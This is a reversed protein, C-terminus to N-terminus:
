QLNRDQTKVDRRDQSTVASPSNQNPADSGKGTALDLATNKTSSGGSPQSGGNSPPATLPNTITRMPQEDATEQDIKSKEEDYDYDEIELEKGAIPAATERALYGCDEAFKVDKLKSSRDQTIIEPFTVECQSGEVGYEDQFKRWVSKVLRGCDLQIREFKKAVPETAVIAGARNSGASSAMGFYNHPLGSGVCVMNVGWELTEDKGTHTGQNALYTRKIKDTHVFRSGAPEFDGLAKLAASLADVDPQGGEVVVDETWAAQKKLSILKYNVCDRLWKLYGLVPYLDSRGRKENSMCNYKFHMLDSAPIQQMIFKSGPVPQGQDVGTYIQYQTPFVLQYYLVRTIDEPYTVIEWCTSPDVLRIRPIIGKPPEQGPRDKYGIYIQQNPLWWIMNEGYTRGEKVIDDMLDYFRNVECFAEWLALAKKDDSDVRFGRGLVFDRTIHIIARAFPHHHYEHFCIAHARLYDYLYPQKNFPGGLLPLYDDGVLGANTGVNERFKAERFKRMRSGKAWAEQIEKKNKFRVYRYRGHTDAELFVGEAECDKNKGIFSMLEPVTHVTNFSKGGERFRDDFLYTNPDFKGGQALAYARQMKQDLNEEPVAVPVENNRRAM